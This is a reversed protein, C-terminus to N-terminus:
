YLPFDGHLVGLVAGACEDWPHIGQMALENVDGSSLMGYSGFDDSDYGYGYGYGGGDYGGGGGGGSGDFAAASRQKKAKAAKAKAKAAKAKKKEQAKKKKQAKKAKKRAKKKSARSEVSLGQNNPGHAFPCSPGRPCRGRNLFDFCSGPPHRRRQAAAQAHKRRTRDAAAARRKQIVVPDLPCGEPDPHCIKHCDPCPAADHAFTCYVTECDLGFKCPLTEGRHLPCRASGPQGLFPVRTTFEDGCTACVLSDGGGGGGQHAGDAGKPGRFPFVTPDRPGGAQPCEQVWHSEPTGGAVGCIICVYNRNRPTSVIPAAKGRPPAPPPRRRRPAGSRAPAPGRAGAAGMGAGAAIRYRDKGIALFAGEKCGDLLAKTLKSKKVKRERTQMMMWMIDARTSGNRDGLQILAQRTLRSYNIPKTGPKPM